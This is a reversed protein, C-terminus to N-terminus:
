SASSREFRPVAMAPDTSSRLRARTPECSPCVSALPQFIVAIEPFKYEWAVKGDPDVEVLASMGQNGPKQYAIHSFSVLASNDLVRPLQYYQQTDTSGSDPLIVLVTKGAPLKRAIQLAGFVATGSSGGCFLGEERVLRRAMLFSERDGVQIVDDPLQDVVILRLELLGPNFDARVEGAIQGDLIVKLGM